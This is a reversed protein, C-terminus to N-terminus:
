ASTSLNQPLSTDETKVTEVAETQGWGSETTVHEAAGRRGGGMLTQRHLVGVDKREVGNVVGQLYGGGM